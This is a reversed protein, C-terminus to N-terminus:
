LPAGTMLKGVLARAGEPTRMDDSAGATAMNFWVVRGSRLDVLSAFVTQGGLPIGVGLAAMGIFMAKRGGSSYSGRGNVFLAYDAGRAERVVNTGEGLTWDFTGKKTPLNIVGYNFAMISQGVAEHLRILQGERGAMAQTPDLLESPRSKARLESEIAQTINTRAQQSWDARAEQLGAATLLSLQVDPQMLLVKSNPAPASIATPAAMRTSTTTGCAALLACAAIALLLRM